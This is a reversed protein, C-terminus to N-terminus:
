QKEKAIKALQDLLKSLNFSEGKQMNERAVEVAYNALVFNNSFLRKLNENTLTQKSM